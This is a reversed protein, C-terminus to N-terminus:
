SLMSNEFMWPLLDKISNVRIISGTEGTFYIEINQNQKSEYEAITQRCSGCPAVPQNVKKKKSSATIFVKKIIGEPMSSIASWIAVREACVGSPYAANEQNNGLYISGNEMLVAAGVSFNSYPAYAKNKAQNAKKMLEIELANLEQADKYETFHLSVTKNKM